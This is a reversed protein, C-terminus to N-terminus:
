KMPPEPTEEPKTKDYTKKLLVPTLVTAIIIMGVLASYTSQMIVRVFHPGLLM